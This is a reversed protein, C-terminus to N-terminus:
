SPRQAAPSGWTYVSEGDAADTISVSTGVDILIEEVPTAELVRRSGDELEITAGNARVEVVTGTTTEM